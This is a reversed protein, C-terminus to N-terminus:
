LLAPDHARFLAAIDAGPEHISEILAAIRPPMVPLYESPVDGADRYTHPGTRIRGRADLVRSSGGRSSGELVEFASIM